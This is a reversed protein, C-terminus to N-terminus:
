FKGQHRNGTKPSEHIEQLGFSCAVGFEEPSKAAVSRSRKGLTSYIISQIIAQGFTCISAAAEEGMYQCKYCGKVVITIPDSKQIQLQGLNHGEWFRVIEDLLDDLKESAMNKSIEKGIQTALTQIVDEPPLSFWQFIRKSSEVCDSLRVLFREDTEM